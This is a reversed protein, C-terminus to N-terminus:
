QIDDNEYLEKIDKFILKTRAKFFSRMCNFFKRNVKDSSGDTCQFDCYTKAFKLWNRQYEKYLSIREEANSDKARLEKYLTDLASLMQQKEIDKEKKYCAVVEHEESFDKCSAIAFNISLLYFLSLLTIKFKM